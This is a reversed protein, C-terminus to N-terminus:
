IRLVLTLYSIGYVVIGWICLSENDQEVSANNYQM